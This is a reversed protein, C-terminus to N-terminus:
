RILGDLIFGQHPKAAAGEPKGQGSEASATSKAEPSDLGSKIGCGAVHAALACALSLRAIPKLMLRGLM